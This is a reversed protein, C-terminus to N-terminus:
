TYIHIMKNIYKEVSLNKQNKIILHPVVLKCIIKKLTLENMRRFIDGESFFTM